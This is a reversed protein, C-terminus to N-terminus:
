VGRGFRRDETLDLDVWSLVADDIGCSVSAMM